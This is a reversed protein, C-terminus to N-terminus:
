WTNCIHAFKFGKLTAFSNNRQFTLHFVILGIKISEFKYCKFYPLIVKDSIPVLKIVISGVFM